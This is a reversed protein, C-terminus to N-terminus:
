VLFWMKVLISSSKVFYYLISLSLCASSCMGVLALTVPSRSRQYSVIGKRGRSQQGVSCVTGFGMVQCVESAMNVSSVHIQTAIM